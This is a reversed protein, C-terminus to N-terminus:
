KSSSFTIELTELQRGFFSPTYSQEQMPADLKFNNMRQVLITFASILEQRALPAGVCHHRGQGFALHKGAHKRNLDITEPSAFITHDRNAAGFRLSLLDGARLNVGGLVTDRTVSRFMGQAPSELRLVEEVFVSIKSPDQQLAQQVEPFNCLLLMGSSIASTTTENGSALLDITLIALVEDMALYNGEQDRANAVISLLDDTPHQRRLEVKEAFFHQMDVVLQACEVEREPTVMMSFPEVIADSWEKFLELNDAEVGIQEAIIIMPFPHAFAGVFECAGAAIFNDILKNATADIYPTIGRVRKATFMTSLIDRVWTHRPPDSTSCSAKPLWGKETYVAIVEAPVGEPRLAMPSVASGFLDPQKIVEQCLDFSTVLHFGTDPMKYIPAEERLRRYLDYPCKQVEPQMLSPLNKLDSNSDSLDKTM